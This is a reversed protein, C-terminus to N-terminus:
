RYGDRAPDWDVLWGWTGRTRAGGPSASARRLRRRSPSAARPRGAPWPMRSPWSIYFMFTWAAPDAPDPVDHVAFFSFLGDPHAAALYLPHFSRLFLAQERPYRCHVLTSAYPLRTVAGLQPGLLSSEVSTGDDDFYATVSSGDAACAYSTLRKGYRIDLGRSLFARLKSRQLRYFSGFTLSFFVAGTDGQLFSLTDQDKTPTHPDVQLTQLAAWEDDDDGVLSRLMPAGWHLGMHWDRERAAAPHKEFVLCAIGAQPRPPLNAFSRSHRAHGHHGM